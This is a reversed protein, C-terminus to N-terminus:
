IIIFTSFLIEHSAAHICCMFNTGMRGVLLAYRLSELQQTTLQKQLGSENDCFMGTKWNIHSKGSFRTPVGDIILQFSASHTSVTAADTSNALSRKHRKKPSSSSGDTPASELSNKKSSDTTNKKLASIATTTAAAAASSSSLANESQEGYGSTTTTTTTSLGVLINAISQEELSLQLSRKELKFREVQAQLEALHAKKRLRTKRAHERNRERSRELRDEVSRRVSSGLPADSRTQERDEYSPHMRQSYNEQNEDDDDDDDGYNDSNMVSTHSVRKRHNQQPYTRKELAANNAATDSNRNRGTSSKVQLHNEHKLLLLQVADAKEEEEEVQQQQLAAVAFALSQIDQPNSSSPLFSM